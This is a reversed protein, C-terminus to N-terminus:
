DIVRVLRIGLNSPPVGVSCAGSKADRIFDPIYSTHAGAVVRVGCNETRSVEFGSSDLHARTHCTNTWDWVNFAMNIFGFENTDANDYKILDKSVKLKRQAELKYEALWAEAPNSNNFAQILLDETYASGAAYVWEEFTPLRHEIGTKNSIWKAYDTADIWSVGVVPLDSSVSNRNAKDLQRCGGDSVCSAYESQSVQKASIVVPKSFVYSSHEPSVPFGNSLHEGAPYYNITTAPLEIYLDTADVVKSETNSVNCASLFSASVIVTIVAQIYSVVYRKELM